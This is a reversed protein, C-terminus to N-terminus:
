EEKLVEAPNTLAARISQYSVTLWTIVIIAVGAVIFVAPNITIKYPFQELWRYMVYWSVPVALVISVLILKTFNGNLLFVMQGTTAGLSKRIGIERRRQEASYTVLGVMGIMAIFISLCTFLTFLGGLREEQQYKRIWEERLFTYEFPADHILKSWALKLGNLVDPTSAGSVKLAIIRNSNWTPTKSHYFIAPAINRKLSEFHFDRLVGKVEKGSMEDGMYLIRKGIAEEPTWGFLRAATENILVKDLDSEVGEEYGSGAVITMDLTKVLHEDMQMMSVPFKETGGEKMFMDELGGRGPVDMAIAADIVGPIGAVENRFSEIHQGLKEAHNVVVVNEADFGLDSQKFYELQQYVIITSAIFGVSIVFQSVVLVNRLGSRKQGSFLRGKLVKVPQLATLYFAPYAGALFGVGLVLAPLFWAMDAGWVTLAPMQVSLGHSIAIRLIETLGLGIVTACLTLLISELQFQVIMSRRFAGLVKKVGVEKARRAARATTLNVFNIIALLVVFVGVASFIYVYRIDGVPGARNGEERSYLHIKEVPQLYFNWGDKDRIFDEYNIGFRAFTPAVHRSAMDVFKKELAAVDTGPKVKIYTLVQTWIWSWEYEKISPNTYMSTLYDFHFHINEKQKETVGTVEVPIRDDGMLITKGLAPEDGFLRKAAEPSLVVKNVGKLATEPDGERLRFAFFAFFNSDAFLISEEYFARVETGDDYRVLQGFPVNIRTSAEIEPYDNVLTQALPLSTSSMVGGQPNWIATQNVRYMRDVDPHMEDYSLQQRVYSFILLCSAIGIALGLVNILSFYRDRFISRLAITFFSKFM